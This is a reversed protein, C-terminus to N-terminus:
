RLHPKDVTRRMTRVLSRATGLGVDLKKAVWESLNKCGDATAVQAADLLELNELVRSQLMSVMAMDSLLQQESRDVSFEREWEM